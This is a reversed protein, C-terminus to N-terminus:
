NLSIVEWEDKPWRTEFNPDESILIKEYDLLDKHDENLSYERSKELEHIVIILPLEQTVQSLNRVAAMTVELSQYDVFVVKAESHKLILSMTHADHRINLTNLVARAM